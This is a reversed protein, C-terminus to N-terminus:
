VVTPPDLGYDCKDQLRKRAAFRAKISFGAHALNSSDTWVRKTHIYM